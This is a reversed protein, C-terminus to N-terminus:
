HVGPEAEEAEPEWGALVLLAERSLASMDPPIVVGLAGGDHAAHRVEQTNRFGHCRELLWQASQRCPEVYIRRNGTPDAPDEQWGGLAKLHLVGLLKAAGTERAEVVADRFEAFGPDGADGRSLWKCVTTRHLGCIGAATTMTSGISLAALIRDRNRKTFAKGPMIDGLIIPHDPPPWDGGRGVM